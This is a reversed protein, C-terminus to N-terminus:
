EIKMFQELDEHKETEINIEEPKINEMQRYVKQGALAVSIGFRKNRKPLLLPQISNIFASIHTDLKTLESFHDRLNFLNLFISVMLSKDMELM